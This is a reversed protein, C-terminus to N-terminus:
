PNFSVMWKGCEETKTTQINVQIATAADYNKADIAEALEALKEITDPQILEENNLHDFLLDLRKQTDKVQPAFNAPARSAVRQSDRTLIDVLRQASAPIHSRDGPPHRPKPPSAAPPPSPQAAQPPPAQPPGSSPPPGIPPKSQEPTAGGYSAPAYPGM